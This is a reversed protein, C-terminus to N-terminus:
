TVAITWQMHHCSILTICKWLNHYLNLTLQWISLMIFTYYTLLGAAGISASILLKHTIIGTLHTKTTTTAM